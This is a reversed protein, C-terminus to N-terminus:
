IRVQRPPNKIEEDPQGKMEKDIADRAAQLTREYALDMTAFEEDGHHFTRTREPHKILTYDCRWMGHPLQHAEMEIEIGKHISQIM